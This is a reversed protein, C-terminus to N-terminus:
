CASTRPRTTLDRRATVGVCAPSAVPTVTLPSGRAVPRSPLWGRYRGHDPAGEHFAYLLVNVDPLIM